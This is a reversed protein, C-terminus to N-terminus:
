GCASSSPLDGRGEVTALGVDESAFVAGRLRPRGEFVGLVDPSKVELM